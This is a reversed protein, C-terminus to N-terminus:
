RTRRRHGEAGGAGWGACWGPTSGVAARGGCVWRDGAVSVVRVGSVTRQRRWQWLRLRVPLLPQVAREHATAEGAPQAPAPLRPCAQDLLSLLRRTAAVESSPLQRLEPLSDM